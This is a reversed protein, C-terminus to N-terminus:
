RSASAPPTAARARLFLLEHSLTAGQDLVGHKEIHRVDEHFLGIVDFSSAAIAALEEGMDCRATAGLHLIVTGGPRLAARCVAFFTAYVERSRRQQVELFRAPRAEAEFDAPEWGCFWLRIWNTLYFRTSGVFPPSSIVADVSGPEVADGLFRYDGAVSRGELFGEPRAALLGREVKARLRPMLERPEFPGSPAFPTLGHSRRSLAYPRNGHLIHLLSALVLAESPSSPARGLFFARARLIEELTAEHYYGELPGNFSPLPGRKRRSRRALARELRSLVAEVAGREPTGLKAQACAQAIPNVDNSIGRRGQLCAEFAITGVGGLPDLVTEGPKTFRQVLHHALSPKLKGQYSCLSHLPHGWNRRSFPLQTHPLAAMFARAERALPDRRSARPAREFRLLVQRLPAGGHSSRKRLLTTGAHRLGSERALAVLIADTPVPVGCFRSDGIDLLLAGGPALVSALSDLVRGMDSAYGRVLAPIRPDYACADLKRAVAEVEPFLRPAERRKSVGNIGAMIGQGHLRALEAESAVLGLVLLELKTNRFYNTGNLYPPSTIVLDFPELDAPIARADEAVLATEGQTVGEVALALVDERLSALKAELAPAVGAVEAWEKGRRCRLDAARKMGSCDVVIAAVALRLLERLPEDDIGDIARVAARLSRLASEEFFSRKEFTFRLAEVDADGARAAAVVSAARAFARRVHAAGRAALAPAAELKARTVLRMLPNVEAWAAFLGAHSAVLPTTGCGAFPDLVRRAGPHERLLAAVFDCSYGEVYPYWRHIRALRNPAFTGARGVL